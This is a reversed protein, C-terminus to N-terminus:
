PRARCAPGPFRQRVLLLNALDLAHPEGSRDELRAGSSQLNEALYAESLLMPSGRAGRALAFLIRPEQFRRRLIGHEIKNLSFREREIRLLNRDWTGPIQRISNLPYRFGLLATRKIPYHDLVLGLVAANYTNIWLAIQEDPTAQALDVREFSQLYESLTERQSVLGAYDVWGGNVYRRLLGDYAVPDLLDARVPGALLGLLIAWVM